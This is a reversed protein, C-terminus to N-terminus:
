LDCADVDLMSDPANMSSTPDYRKLVDCVYDIDELELGHHAGLMFCDKMITDSGAFATESIFFERYAPHRTINGAFFVRTQIGNNEIYNLLGKREWSPPVLLPMALWNLKEDDKPLIYDTYKLNEMYRNVNARRKAVFGHLKQMQVIGFAAMMETAKFNYGKVTYLFKFDYPIGDVSHGFRESPDEVNNGARGWDRFSLAVRVQEQSNCM